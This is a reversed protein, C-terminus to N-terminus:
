VEPLNLSIEGFNSIVVRYSFYEEVTDCDITYSDKEFKIVVNSISDFTVDEKKKYTKKQLMVKKYNDANFFDEEELFNIACFSYISFDDEKTEESKEWRGYDDQSYTYIKDDLVEFYRTGALIIEQQIINGDVKTNTVLQTSHETYYYLEIQYNNAEDMQKKFKEIPHESCSVLSSMTFVLVLIVSLIKKM